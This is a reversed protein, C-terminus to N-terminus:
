AFCPTGLGLVPYRMTPRYTSESEQSATVSSIIYNCLTHFEVPIQTYITRCWLWGILSTQMGTKPSIVYLSGSLVSFRRKRNGWQRKVGVRWPVGAFIRMFRIPRSGYVWLWQTVDKGSITYPDIKVSIKVTPESGGFVCTPRNQFLTRFPRELDNVIM